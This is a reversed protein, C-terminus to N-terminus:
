QNLLEERSKLVSSEFSSKNLTFVYPFDTATAHFLTNDGSPIRLRLTKQVGNEMRLQIAYLETGFNEKALSDVFGGARLTGLRSILSSAGGPELTDGAIAWRRQGARELSFSSDAPYMFDVRSIEDPNLKWITKNRWDAVPKNFAPPLFGEVTFVSEEGPRRVYSNFERRGLIQPAGIIISGLPQDGSFLSVNTGTSDVKYRTYKDPNRTAVAQVNLQNLRQIANTIVSPDAPYSADTGSGTVTWQGNEKRLTVSRGETPQEIVVRDVRATDVSMVTSRLAESAIGTDGLKVALTVGLLVVFIISLSKTAQTM